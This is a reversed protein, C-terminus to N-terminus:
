LGSKPPRGEGGYAEQSRGSEDIYVCGLTPFGLHGKAGYCWIEKTRVRGIGGPDFRTRIDDPKGLIALVKSEPTGEEIKSMAAAFEERSRNAPAGQVDMSMAALLLFLVARQLTLSKFIM